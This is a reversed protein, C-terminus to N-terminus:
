HAKVPGNEFKLLSLVIQKPFVIRSHFLVMGLFHLIEEETNNSSNFLNLSSNFQYKM